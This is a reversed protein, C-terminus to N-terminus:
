VAVQVEPLFNSLNIGNINLSSLVMAFKQAKYYLNRYPQESSPTTAQVDVEWASPINAIQAVGGDTYEDINLSM